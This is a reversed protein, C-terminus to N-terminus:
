AIRMGGTTVSKSGALKLATRHKQLALESWGMDQLIQEARVIMLDFEQQRAELIKLEQVAYPYDKEIRRQRGAAIENDTLLPVPSQEISDCWFKDNDNCKLLYTSSLKTRDKGSLSKRLEQKRLEGIVANPTDDHLLIMSDAIQSMREKLNLTTKLKEIKKVASELHMFKASMFSLSNNNGHLTKAGKIGNQATEIAEEVYEVQDTHSTRQLVILKVLKEFQEDTLGLHDPDRDILQIIKETKAIVGNMSAQILANKMLKM